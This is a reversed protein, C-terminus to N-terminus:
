LQKLGYTAILLADIVGERVAKNKISKELDTKFGKHLRGLAIASKDKPKLSGKIGAHIDKTWKAPEIYTVPHGSYAVACELTGFGRGYNFASTRGMKAAFARELYIHSIDFMWSDLIENVKLFNVSGDENLPMFEYEFVGEGLLVFAGKQGPDIGLVVKNVKDM